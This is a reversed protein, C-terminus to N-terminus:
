HTFEYSVGETVSRSLRELIEPGIAAGTVFQFSDEPTDAYNTLFINLSSMQQYEARTTEWWYLHEKSPTFRYGVVKPSTEEIKKARALTLETPIWNAPPIRLYKKENIYAPVYIFNWRQMLGARISETWGHWWDGRGQPTSEALCFAYPSQPITPFFDHELMKPSPFSAAETIHSVDFQRGQGLGSKQSGTQYLIGSDLKGFHIHESKTDFSGDQPNLSPQLYFPLNDYIRKDREYLEFIKDDDVSASFGRIHPWLSLRHMLVTRTFMTAGLQRAKNQAILIGDVPEGRGHAEWCKEELKAMLKLVLKQSEWLEIPGLGGGLDKIILAYREAWYVFDLKCMFQENRIFDSEEKTWPRTQAGGNWVKDLHSRLDMIKSLEYRKLKISLKSELKSIHSETIASSYM